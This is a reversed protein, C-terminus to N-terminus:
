SFGFIGRICILLIGVGARVDTWAGRTNVDDTNYCM